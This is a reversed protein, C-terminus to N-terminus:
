CYITYCSALNFCSYLLIGNQLNKIFKYSNTPKYSRNRVGIVEYTDDNILRESFKKYEVDQKEFLLKQYPNM